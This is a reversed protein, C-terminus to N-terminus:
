PSLIFFDYYFRNTTTRSCISQYMFAICNSPQNKKSHAAIFLCMPAAVRKLLQAACLPHGKVMKGAM